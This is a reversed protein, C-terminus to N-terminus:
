KRQGRGKRTGATTTAASTAVLALPNRPPPATSSSINAVTNNDDDYSNLIILCNDDLVCFKSKRSLPVPVVTGTTTAIKDDKSDSDLLNIIEDDCGGSGDGYNTKDNRM